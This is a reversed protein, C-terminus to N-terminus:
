RHDDQQLTKSQYQPAGAPKGTAAPSFFFRTREYPAYGEPSAGNLFGIVPMGTQQARAALPWTTAAGGILTIFERRKV